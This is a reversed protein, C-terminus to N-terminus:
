MIIGKIHPNQRLAQSLDRLDDQLTLLEDGRALGKIRLRTAPRSDPNEVVVTLTGSNFVRQIPGRYVEIGVVRFLEYTVTKRNLLGKTIKLLGDRLEYRIARLELVFVLPVVAVVIGLVGAYPDSHRRFLLQIAAWWLGVPLLVILMALGVPYDRPSLRATRRLKDILAAANRSVPSTDSRLANYFGTPNRTPPSSAAPMPEPAVIVTSSPAHTSPQAAAPRHSGGLAALRERARVLDPKLTLARSLYTKAEAERDLEILTIALSYNTLHDDPALGLCRFFAEAAKPYLRSKYYAIGLEHWTRSDQPYVLVLRKLVTIADDLSGEAILRRAVLLEQDTSKNM